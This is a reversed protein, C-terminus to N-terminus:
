RFNRKQWRGGPLRDLRGDLEWDLLAASLEGAGAGTRHALEDLTFPDWGAVQLWPPEPAEPHVPSPTRRALAHPDFPLGALEDLIDRADDVLKAGQKILQHCGKALPSHISGPLAFVERGQDAAVRATILSGSKLAAEVVLVGRVLGSILRNRKPFLRPLAPTGLPSESVLAGGHAVIRAALDRHRSPYMIDVGTGLVAVTVGGAELAGEHAAGDIGLAMGSVICLGNAALAQSFQRANSIGQATANRSGVVAIGTRSLAAPDGVVYVMLPPDDMNLWAAPYAPDGLTLLHHGPVELWDALRTQRALSADDLPACLARASEEGAHRAIAARGARLVDQPLGFGALLARVASPPVGPTECLRWWALAEARREAEQGNLEPM